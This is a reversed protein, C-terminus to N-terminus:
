KTSVIMKLSFLFISARASKKQQRLCFHILWTYHHAKALASLFYKFGRHFVQGSFINPSPWRYKNSCFFIIKRKTIFSHFDNTKKWYRWDCQCILINQYFIICDYSISLSGCSNSNIEIRLRFGDNSDDCLHAWLEIKPCGIGIRNYFLYDDFKMSLIEEIKEIFM